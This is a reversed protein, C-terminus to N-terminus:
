IQYGTDRSGNYQHNVTRQEGLVNINEKYGRRNTPVTDFIGKYRINVDNEETNVLSDRKLHCSDSQTNRVARVWQKKKLAEEPDLKWEDLVHLAEGERGQLWPYVVQLLVLLIGNVTQYISHIQRTDLPPYSHTTHCLTILTLENKM